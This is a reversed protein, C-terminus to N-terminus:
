SATSSVQVINCKQCLSFVIQGDDYTCRVKQALDNCMAALLILPEGCEECGDGEISRQQLFPEGLVQNVIDVIPYGGVEPQAFHGTLSAIYETEEDNLEERRNLATWLAQAREPVQQLAIARRPFEDGYEEYWEPMLEGEYASLIRVRNPMEIKYSFDSWCLSCRMCYFLPIESLGSDQLGLRIDSTLLSLYRILPKKCNPCEAGAIGDSRGGFYHGYDDKDFKMLFGPHRTQM